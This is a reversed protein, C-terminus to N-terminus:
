ESRKNVAHLGVQLRRVAEHRMGRLLGVALRQGERGGGHAIKGQLMHIHFLAKAADSSANQVDACVRNRGAEALVRSAYPNPSDLISSAAAALLESEAIGEFVAAIDRPVSSVPPGGTAIGAANLMNLLMQGVTLTYRCISMAMPGTIADHQGVASEIDYSRGDFQRVGAESRLLAATATMGKAAGAVAMMFEKDMMVRMARYGIEKEAPSSSYATANFAM